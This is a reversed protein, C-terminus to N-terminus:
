PRNVPCLIQQVSTQRPVGVFIGKPRHTGERWSEQGLLLLQKGFESGPLSANRPSLNHRPSSSLPPFSHMSLADPRANSGELRTWM